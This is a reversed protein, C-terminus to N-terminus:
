PAYEGKKCLESYWKGSEKIIREQTKYDTYILGFRKTYGHAWEFNDLLSWVFYGRVDAGESIARNVMALYQKLFEIRDLDNVKKKEVKDPYAAGNETIYVPPNGYENKIWMLTNYIGDPFVEWGMETFKVGDYDPTVSKFGPIPMLTNKVINRTYNNVGIFDVPQKILDFDSDKIGWNMLKILWEISKPYHGKFIPDMFIQMMFANAMKEARKDSPEAPYVPTLAHSIGVKLKRNIARIRELSKAHALMLTHAARLAKIMSKEGPAHEGVYYGAGYAILPENLTIWNKVRDGFKKVAAETYDAFRDATERNTWGGELHLAHPLDWHYLTVFPDIKKKLLEDILKDYFALGKRNLPGKGDPFLRTWAISFRYAGLGLRKMLTTDDKWLRYHDCATDGSTADSIKGPIHSFTDWISPGKGDAKWSGEIQYAATATGWKFGKPFSIKKNM